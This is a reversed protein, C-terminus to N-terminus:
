KKISKIMEAWAQNKKFIMNFPVWIPATLVMWKAMFFILYGIAPVLLFAYMWWHSFVEVDFQLQGILIEMYKVAIAHM